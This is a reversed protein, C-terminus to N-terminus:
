GAHAPIWGEQREADVRQGLRGRMRPSGGQKGLTYFGAGVDVGCARPDVRLVLTSGSAWSLRGRM